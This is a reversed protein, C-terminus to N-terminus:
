ENIYRFFIASLHLYEQSLELASEHSSLRGLSVDWSFAFLQKM